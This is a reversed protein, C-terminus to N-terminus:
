ITEAFPDRYAGEVASETEWSARGSTASSATDNTGVSATTDQTNEETTGETTDEASDDGTDGAAGEREGFDSAYDFARTESYGDESSTGDGGSATDGGRPLNGNTMTPNLEQHFTEKVARDVIADVDLEDRPIDLVRAITKTLERVETRFSDESNLSEFGLDHVATNQQDAQVASSWCQRWRTWADYVRDFGARSDEKPPQFWGLELGSDFVQEKDRWSTLVLRKSCAHMLEPDFEHTKVVVVSEEASVAGLGGVAALADRSAEVEGMADRALQKTKADMFDMQSFYGFTDTKRVAHTIVPPCDAFLTNVSKPFACPWVQEINRTFEDLDGDVGRFL